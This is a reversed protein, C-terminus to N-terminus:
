MYIAISYSQICVKDNASRLLNVEHQIDESPLLVVATSYSDLAPFASASTSAMRKKTAPHNLSYQKYALELLIM